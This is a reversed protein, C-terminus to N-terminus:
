KVIKIGKNGNCKDKPKSEQKSSYKGSMRIILIGLRLITKLIFNKAKIKNCLVSPMEKSKSRICNIERKIEEEFGNNKKFLFSLREFKEIDVMEEDKTITKKNEIV